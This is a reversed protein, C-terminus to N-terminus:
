KQIECHSDTWRSLSIHAEMKKETEGEGGATLWAVDKFPNHSLTVDLDEHERCSGATKKEVPIFGM